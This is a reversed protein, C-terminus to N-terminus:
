LFFVNPCSNVFVIVELIKFRKYKHAEGVLNFLVNNFSKNKTEISNLSQWFTGQIQRDVFNPIFYFRISRFHLNLIRFYPVTVGNRNKTISKVKKILTFLPLTFQLIQRFRFVAFIVLSCCILFCFICLVFYVTQM